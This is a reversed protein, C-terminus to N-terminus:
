SSYEFSCRHRRNDFTLVVEDGEKVLFLEEFDSHAQRQFFSKM